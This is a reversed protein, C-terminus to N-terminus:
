IVEPGDDPPAQGPDEARAEADPDDIQSAPQDPAPLDTPPEHPANTGPPTIDTVTPDDKARTGCKVMTMARQSAMFQVNTECHLVVTLTGVPYQLDLSPKVDTVEFILDHMPRYLVYDGPEVKAGFRDLMAARGASLDRAFKAIQQRAEAMAQERDKAIRNRDM